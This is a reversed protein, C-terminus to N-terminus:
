GAVLGAGVSKRESSYDEIEHQFNCDNSLLDRLEENYLEMMSASVSITWGISKMNMVCQLIQEVACPTLGMSEEGKGGTM